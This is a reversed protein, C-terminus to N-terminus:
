RWDGSLVSAAPPRPEQRAANCTVALRREFGSLDDWTRRSGCRLQRAIEYGTCGVGQADADAPLLRVIDDDEEDPLDFRANVAYIFDKFPAITTPVDLRPDTLFRRVQGSRERGDLKVTGADLLDAGFIARMVETRGAGLLGAIGLVEGQHLKFSVDRFAGERSLGAVELM